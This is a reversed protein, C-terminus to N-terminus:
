SPYASEYIADRYATISWLVNFYVEHHVFVTESFCLQDRSQGVRKVGALSQFIMLWQLRRTPEIAHWWIGGGASSNIYTMPYRHYERADTHGILQAQTKGRQPVNHGLVQM